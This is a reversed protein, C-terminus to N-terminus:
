RYRFGPKLLTEGGHATCHCGEIKTVNVRTRRHDIVSTDVAIVFEVTLEQVLPDGFEPLLGLATQCAFQGLLFEPRQPQHIAEIELKM